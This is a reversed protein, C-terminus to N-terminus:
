NRRLHAGCAHSQLLDVLSVVRCPYRKPDTGMQPIQPKVSVTLNNARHERNRLSGGTKARREKVDKNM